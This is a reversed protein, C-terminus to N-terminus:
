HRGLTTQTVPSLPRPLTGAGPRLEQLLTGMPPVPLKLRLKTKSYSAPTSGLGSNWCMLTKFLPDMSHM